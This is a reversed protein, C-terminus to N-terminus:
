LDCPGLDGAVWGPPPLLQQALPWEGCVTSAVTSRTEAWPQQQGQRLLRM